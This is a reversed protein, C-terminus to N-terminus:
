AAGKAQQLIIAEAHELLAKTRINEHAHRDVYGSVRVLHAPTMPQGMLYGAAAFQGIALETKLGELRAMTLSQAILDHTQAPELGHLNTYDHTIASTLRKVLRVDRINKLIAVYLDDLRYPAPQTVAVNEDATYVHLVSLDARPVIFRAIQAGGALQFWRALHPPSAALGKLIEDMAQPMFFRLFFWTGKEDPIKTFRRFHDRVVDFPAETQLVIMGDRGWHDWVENSQTFLARTFPHKPELKVVYPACDGLEDAATGNFLCAAQLGLADDPGEFGTITAADIIAYTALDPDGFFLDDAGEPVCRAVETGMQADLPVVPIADHTIRM